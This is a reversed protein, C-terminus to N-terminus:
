LLWGMLEPYSFNDGLAEQISHKEVSYEYAMSNFVYAYKPVMTQGEVFDVGKGTIRWYGSTRKESDENIREEVLDWFLLKSVVPVEKCFSSIHHYDGYHSIDLHYLNILEIAPVAYISRKYLKVKQNCCPCIAGDQTRWGQRIDEKAQQLSDYM